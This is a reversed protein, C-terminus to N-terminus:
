WTATSTEYLRIELYPYQRNFNFVPGPLLSRSIDVDKYYYLVCVASRSRIKLPGKETFETEFAM